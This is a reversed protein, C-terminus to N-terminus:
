GKHTADWIAKRMDEAAARVADQWNAAGYKSAYPGEEWAYLIARSSNVVAGLGEGDFAPLVDEVGAGQAGFGPVLFPTHPMLGRLTQLQAPFTAGAVAGLLSYGCRGVHPAGWEKVLGAVHEYLPRGGCNLDQIEASSPNSTKVLAFVGCGSVSARELFPKMGDSGFLPNVTIADAHFDPLTQAADGPPGPLHAMAYAEATSGIDGRKVDGIVILGRQQAAQIVEGYVRMGDHGFQEFFAVQPKIAVAADRVANIVSLSFRLLMATAGETRRVGGREGQQALAPMIKALRPDIGVVVQSQKRAVAAFLRDAFHERKM